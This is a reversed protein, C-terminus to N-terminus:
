KMIKNGIYAFICTAFLGFAILAWYEWKEWDSVVSIISGVVMATFVIKSMDFFYKGLNERRTNEKQKREQKNVRDREFNSM